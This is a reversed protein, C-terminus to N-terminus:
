KRSMLKDFGSTEILKSTSWFDRSKDQKVHGMLIIVALFIKM